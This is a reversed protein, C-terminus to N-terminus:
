LELLFFHNPDKKFIHRETTMLFVYFFMFGGKERIKMFLFANMCKFYIHLCIM